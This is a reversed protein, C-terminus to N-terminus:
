RGYRDRVQDLQTLLGYAEVTEKSSRPVASKVASRAASATGTVAKAARKAVRKVATATEGVISRESARREHTAYRLALVEYPEGV